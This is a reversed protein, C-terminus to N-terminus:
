ARQYVFVSGDELKSIRLEDDLYVTDIYVETAAEEWRDCPTRSPATTGNLFNLQPLVTADDQRVTTAEVTVGLRVADIPIARAATIVSGYGAFIPAFGLLPVGVSARVVCDSVLRGAEPDISQVVRGVGGGFIGTQHAHADYFFDANEPGMM